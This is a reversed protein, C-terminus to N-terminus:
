RTINQKVIDTWLTYGKNSLHLGDDVFYERKPWGDDNLMAGYVDIFHWNPLNNNIEKSIIQNTFHFQNIINWRSYSPKLSIFYCPIHGFRLEVKRAFDQFFLFVEEPHRGDGLDNDGAYIVIRQPKFSNMVRDFFWTCAALTSGGFGLNVPKLHPLDKTLTSWLRISSSGYFLTEPEFDVNTRLKELRKIDDEYWFM